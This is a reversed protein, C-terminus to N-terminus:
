LLLLNLGNVQDIIQEFTDYGDRNDGLVIYIGEKDQDTLNPTIEVVDGKSAQVKFEITNETIKSIQFGYSEISKAYFEPNINELM